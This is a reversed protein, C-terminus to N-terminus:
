VRFVDNFDIETIVSPWVNKKSGDMSTIVMQMLLQPFTINECADTMRDLGGPLGGYVSVGKPPLDRPRGSCRVTCMMSSHM